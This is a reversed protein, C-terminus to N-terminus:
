NKELLATRSKFIKPASMHKFGSQEMEAVTERFENESIHGEPEAVLIKGSLKLCDHVEQFFLKRDPVEHVLYFALIFDVSQNYKELGLRDGPCVVTELNGAIGAKEARKKLSTIMKEQLDACIVKGGPGVLRAMDLSFYGMGCGIDM